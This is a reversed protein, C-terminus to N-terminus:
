LKKAKIPDKQGIIKIQNKLYTKLVGLIEPNILPLFLAGTLIRWIPLLDVDNFFIGSVKSKLNKM